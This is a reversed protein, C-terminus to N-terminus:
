GCANRKGQGGGLRTGEGGIVWGGLVYGRRGCGGKGQVRVALQGIRDSQTGGQGGEVRQEHRHAQGRLHFAHLHRRLDVPVRRRTGARDPGAADAGQGAQPERLDHVQETSAVQRPGPGAHAHDPRQGGLAPHEGRNTFLQDLPTNPQQIPNHKRRLIVAEPTQFNEIATDFNIGAKFPFQDQLHCL